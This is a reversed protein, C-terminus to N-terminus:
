GTRPFERRVRAAMCGGCRKGYFVYVQKSDFLDHSVCFYRRRLSINMWIHTPHYVRYVLQLPVFFRPLGRGYGATQLMRHLM